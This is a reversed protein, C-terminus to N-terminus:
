GLSYLDVKLYLFGDDSASVFLLTSISPHINEAPKLPETVENLFFPPHDTGRAGLTADEMPKLDEVLRKSRSDRNEGTVAYGCFQTSRQM